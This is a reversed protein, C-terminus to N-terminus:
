LVLTSASLLSESATVEYQQIEHSKIKKLTLNQTDISAFGQYSLISFGIAVLSILIRKM